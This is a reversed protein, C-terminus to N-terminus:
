SEGLKAAVDKSIRDHKWARSKVINKLRSVEDTTLTIQSSRKITATRINKFKMWELLSMSVLFATIWVVFFLVLSISSPVGPDLNGLGLWTLLDILWFFSRAALGGSALFLLIPVADHLNTFGDIEEIRFIAKGLNGSTGLPTESSEPDM